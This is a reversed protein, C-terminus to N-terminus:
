LARRSRQFNIACSIGRISRLLSLPQMFKLESKYFKDCKYISYIYYIIYM